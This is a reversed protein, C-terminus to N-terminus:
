FRFGVTALINTNNLNIVAPKAEHNDTVFPEFEMGERKHMVAFDLYWYSQRYGIGATFYNTGTYRFFEPDTRTTNLRLLKKTESKTGPTVHAFGARVSFVDVPKFEVGLKVTHSTTLMSKTDNNELDFPNANGTEDRLKSTSYDSFHYEASILGKKGLLYAVGANLKLPDILMYSLKADETTLQYDQFGNDYLIKSSVTGNHYDFLDYMTPTQLAFSLRLHNTPLVIAGINLNIGSGTTHMYNGLSLNERGGAGFTEAYTSNILYSLTRINLTAGAFVRNSFNGSWGFSYEDMYGRVTVNYSPVVKENEFLVSKWLGSNNEDPNILYGEFALISLWPINIDNYPL